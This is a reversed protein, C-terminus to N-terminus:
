YVSTKTCSGDGYRAYKRGGVILAGGSWRYGFQTTEGSPYTVTVTGQTEDGEATWQASEGAEGYATGADGTSYIDRRESYRGDSCMNMYRESSGFSSTSIYFYQGALREPVPPAQPPTFTLSAGLADVRPKLGAYKEETTLGVVVAGDGFPTPIGIVRARIRAGDQAIGALEGALGRSDGASFEQLQATPMLQLGEEQLGEQYGEAMSQLNTRRMFRVIMLGAETDSALLLAQKRDVVKWAQPVVFSVGWKEHNYRNGRASRSPGAVPSTRAPSAGRALPNAAVSAGQNQGPSAANRLAALLEDTAGSAKLKSELAPTLSFASGREEVLDEMRRSPVGGELLQFVEAETLGRGRRPSGGAGTPTAAMAPAVSESGAGAESAAPATGGFSPPAGGRRVLVLPALLDGGTLILQSGQHRYSYATTEGEETVFLQDGRVRWSGPSGEFDATGDANLVFVMELEFGEVKGVWTGVLNSSQQAHVWTVSILLSFVLRLVGGRM